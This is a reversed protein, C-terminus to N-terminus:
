ISIFLTDIFRTSKKFIEQGIVFADAILRRFRDVMEPPYGGRNAEGQSLWGCWMSYIMVMALVNHVQDRNGVDSGNRVIVIGQLLAALEGFAPEKTMETPVYKRALGVIASSNM